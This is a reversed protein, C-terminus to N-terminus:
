FTIICTDCIKESKGYFKEPSIIAETKDDFANIIM